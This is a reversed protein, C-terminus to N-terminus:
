RNILFLGSPLSLVLKNLFINEKEILNKKKLLFLLSHFNLNDTITLEHQMEEHHDTDMKTQDVKYM